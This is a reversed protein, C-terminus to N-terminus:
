QLHIRQGHRFIIQLYKYDDSHIAHKKLKSLEKNLCTQIHITVTGTQGSCVVTDYDPM